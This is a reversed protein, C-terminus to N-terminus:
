KALRIIWSPTRNSMATTMTPPTTMLVTNPQHAAHPTVGLIFVTGCVISSLRCIIGSAAVSLVASARTPRGTQVVRAPDDPSPSAQRRDDPTQKRNEHCCSKQNVPHFIPSRLRDM